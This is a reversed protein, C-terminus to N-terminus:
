EEDNISYGHLEEFEDPGPLNQADFDGLRVKPKLEVVTPPKQKESKERDRRVQMRDKGMEALTCCSTPMLISCANKKLRRHDSDTRM